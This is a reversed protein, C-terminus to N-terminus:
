IPGGKWLAAQANSKHATWLAACATPRGTARVGKAKASRASAGSCTRLCMMEKTLVGGPMSLKGLTAKIPGRANLPQEPTVATCSSSDAVM